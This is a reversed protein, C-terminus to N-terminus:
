PKLKAIMASVISFTRPSEDLLVRQKVPAWMSGAHSGFYSVCVGEM